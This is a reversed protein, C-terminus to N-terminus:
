KLCKKNIKLFLFYFSFYFAFRISYEIEELSSDSWPIQRNIIEWIVVGFSFLDGKQYGKL